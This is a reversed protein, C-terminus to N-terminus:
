NEVGSRIRVQGTGASVRVQKSIVGEGGAIEVVGGSVARGRSDFVLRDDTFTTSELLLGNSLVKTSVQEGDDVQGNSNEDDVIQFDNEDPRYQIIVNHNEGRARAQAVRCASAVEFSAQSIRQSERFSRLNPVSVAVLIGVVVIGVMVETMSFGREEGFRGEVHRM